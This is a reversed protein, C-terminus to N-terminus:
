SGTRDADTLPTTPEPEGSLIWSPSIAGPTLWARLVRATAGCADAPVTQAVVATVTDGVAAGAPAAAVFPPPAFMSGERRDEVLVLGCDGDEVHGVIAWRADYLEGVWPVIITSEPWGDREVLDAWHEAAAVDEVAMARTATGAGDVAVVYLDGTWAWPVALMAPAAGRLTDVRYATTGASDAGDSQLIRVIAISEDGQPAALQAWPPPFGTDRIRDLLAIAADRDAAPAVRLVTGDSRPLRDLCWGSVGSDPNDDHDEDTRPALLVDAVFWRTTVERGWTPLLRLYVSHGGGHLTGVDSDFIYHEGGANSCEEIRTSTSVVALVRNVGTSVSTATPKAPPPAPPEAVPPSPHGCAIVFVLLLSRM